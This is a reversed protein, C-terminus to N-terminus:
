LIGKELKRSEWIRKGNGGNLFGVGDRIVVHQCPPFHWGPGGAAASDPGQHFDLSEVGDGGGACHLSTPSASGQGM